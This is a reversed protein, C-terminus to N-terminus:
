NIRFWEIADFHARPHYAKLADSWNLEQWGLSQFIPDSIDRRQILSLVDSSLAITNKRAALSPLHFQIFRFKPNASAFGEAGAVVWPRLDPQEAGCVDVVFLKQASAAFSLVWDFDFRGCRLVAVRNARLGDLSDVLLRNKTPLLALRRPDKVGIKLSPRLSAFTTLQSLVPSNADLPFDSLVLVDLSVTPEVERFGLRRLNETFGASLTMAASGGQDTRRSLRKQFDLLTAAAGAVAPAGTVDTLGSEAAADKANETWHSIERFSELRQRLPMDAWAALLSTTLLPRLSLKWAQSEFRTVDRMCTEYHESLKWPSECYSFGDKLTQPWRAGLRTRVGRAVDEFEPNGDIMGQLFDALVEEVLDGEILSPDRERLWAKVFGRELHGEAEIMKEGIYLTGKQLRYAWPRQPLVVIRLPQRFPELRWLNEEIRTIRSQWGPLQVALHPNWPTDKMLSCRWISETESTGLRDLREVVRSDICQPKRSLYVGALTLFGLSVLWLVNLRATLM